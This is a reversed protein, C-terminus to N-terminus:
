LNHYQSLYFLLFFFFFCVVFFLCIEYSRVIHMCCDVTHYIHVCWDYCPCCWCMHLLTRRGLTTVAACELTRGMTVKATIKSFEKTSALLIM